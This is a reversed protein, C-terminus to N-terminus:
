QPLGEINEIREELRPHYSLLNAENDGFRRQIIKLMECYVNKSNSYGILSLVELAKKDADNEQSRSYIPLVVNSTWNHMVKTTKDDAGFGILDIIIKRFDDLDRVKRPHLLLDHAVEHAIIADIASPPLNALSEWFLFKGGGFSAANVINDDKVFYYEFTVNEPYIKQVISQFHKRIINQYPNNFDRKVININTKKNSSNGSSFCSGIQAVWIFILASLILCSVSIGAVNHLSQKIKALKM